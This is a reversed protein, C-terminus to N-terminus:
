DISFSSMYAHWTHNGASVAAALAQCHADAGALGGLNGGNGIPTSTVFFTMPHQQANSQPAQQALALYGGVLPVLLITLTAALRTM